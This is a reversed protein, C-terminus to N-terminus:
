RLTVSMHQTMEQLSLMFNHYSYKYVIKFNVNFLICVYKYSSFLLVMMKWAGLFGLFVTVTQDIPRIAAFCNHWSELSPNVSFFKRSDSDIVTQEVKVSSFSETSWESEYM